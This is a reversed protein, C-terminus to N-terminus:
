RDNVMMEWRFFMKGETGQLSRAKEVTRLLASLALFALNTLRLKKMEHFNLRIWMKKWCGVQLPIHAEVSLFILKTCVFQYPNSNMQIWSISLFFTRSYYKYTDNQQTDLRNKVRFKMLITQLNNIMEEIFHWIFSWNKASILQLNKWVESEM